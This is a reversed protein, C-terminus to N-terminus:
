GLLPIDCFEVEATGKIGDSEFVIIENLGQKLVSAPVYLTKQPGIDWYRGLNFGNITVFGKTFNDLKLFTDYAKDIHIYGKYFASKESFTNKSFDLKELNDMPLPYVEWNFHIKNNILCRGAIGKKRMMKPGFNARGMNECLITLKDGSKANIKISLSDNIYLIGILQKNIYIQARDGLSELSLEAEVYDRNLVTQYAIFGHGTGYKEM